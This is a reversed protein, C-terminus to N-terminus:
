RLAAAVAAGAPVLVLAPLLNGVRVDKLELLRLGIGVILIGGVADLARLVDPTFLDRVAGAGLTLGGQYVVITVISAGVGLGYVSTLATAAFGDLVSKIVLLRADGELGDRLSGLVTLPGVCFVISATLFGKAFGSEDSGLRRKIREGLREIRDEIQLATGCVAGAVLGVLVVIADVLEGREFTRLGGAIGLVFTFLGLAHMVARQMADSLLRAGYRGSLTGAAVTGVNVLTGHM